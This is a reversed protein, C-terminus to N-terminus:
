VADRHHKTIHMMDEKGTRTHSKSFTIWGSNFMVRLDSFDKSLSYVLLTNDQKDLHAYINTFYQLLFLILCKWFFQFIGWRPCLNESLNGAGLDSLIVFVQCIGTPLSPPPNAHKSNVSGHSLHKMLTM